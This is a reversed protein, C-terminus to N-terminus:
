AETEKNGFHSIFISNAAMLFSAMLRPDNNWAERPWM